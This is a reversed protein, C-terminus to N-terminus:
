MSRHRLAARLLEVVELTVLRAVPLAVYAGGAMICATFM